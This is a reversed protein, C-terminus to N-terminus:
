DDQHGPFHPIGAPAGGYKQRWRSIYEKIEEEPIEEGTITINIGDIIM